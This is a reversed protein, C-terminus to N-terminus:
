EAQPRSRGDDDNRRAIGTAKCDRRWVWRWCTFTNIWVNYKLIQTQEYLVCYSKHIVPCRNTFKDEEILMSIKLARLFLARFPGTCVKKGVTCIQFMILAVYPCKLNMQNTTKCTCHDTLWPTTKKKNRLM